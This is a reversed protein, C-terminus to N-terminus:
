IVKFRATTVAAAAAAVATSFLFIERIVATKNNGWLACKVIGGLTQGEKPEIAFTTGTGCSQIHSFAYTYLMMLFPM